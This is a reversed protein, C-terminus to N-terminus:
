EWNMTRGEPAITEEKELLMQMSRDLIKEKREQIMTLYFARQLETLGPTEDILRKIRDMDIRESIRELAQKRYFSFTAFPVWFTLVG